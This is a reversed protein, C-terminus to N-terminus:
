SALKKPEPPLPPEDSAAVLHFVLREGDIALTIQEEGTPLVEPPVTGRGDVVRMGSTMWFEADAGASLTPRRDGWTIRYLIGGLRIMQDVDVAAVLHDRLLRVAEAFTIEDADTDPLILEREM